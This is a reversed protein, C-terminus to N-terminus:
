SAGCTDREHRWCHAAHDQQQLRGHWPVLGVYCVFLPLLLGDFLKSQCGLLAFGGVQMVTQLVIVCSLAPSPHDLLDMQNLVM